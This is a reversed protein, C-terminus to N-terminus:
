ASAGAPVAGASDASGRGGREPQYEPLVAALARRLDDAAQGPAGLEAVVEEINRHFSAQGRWVFVKQCRTADVLEDTFGLEEYMKEGPRIGTFQIEVDVGPELGSLRIMQEALDVIRVPEGMDLVMVDGGQALGAAELVLRSAEPITMVFRTMDQHTVTVPGGKAIQERFLPIVSGASGLVNGFRVAVFRTSSSRQLHQVYLEALRKTAGMVSTPNVAKDTSIQVFREAGYEHALDAVQKSGLLNNKIAEGPNAEMMPVHKHAAAHFVIQPRHQEFVARMRAADGISGIMPVIETQLAKASLERDIHFLNNECSEVLVLRRPALALLQRCLESGISGGAGTVLVIKDPVIKEAASDEIVVPERGLLDEIAVDRMQSISFRGSLLDHLAPIIKAKLGAAECEATIRKVLDGRAGAIAILAVEAGTRKAVRHLDGVRGQVPIGHVARGQKKPDDDLFAVPVLGVDARRELERALLHGAHGAGILIAPVVRGRQIRHRLLGREIQMRRVVRIGAIGLLMLVADIAIVGLPLATASLGLPLQQGAVSFRLVTLVLVSAATGYMVPPLERLSVLSWPCRTVGFAWLALFQGGIVWPMAQWLQEAYRPELQWDFRFLFALCLAVALVALDVLARLPPAMMTPVYYYLPSRSPRGGPSEDVPGGLDIRRVARASPIWPAGSTREEEQTTGRKMTALPAVQRSALREGFHVPTIRLGPAKRRPVAVM